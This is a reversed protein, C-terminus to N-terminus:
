STVFPLARLVLDGHTWGAFAAGAFALTLAALILGTGARTPTDERDLPRLLRDVRKALLAGPGGFAAVVAGRVPRALRAASVLASALDEGPVGARRAEDDRALELANLWAQLREPATGFPWQLDTAIQALWIRLPDRHRAHAREHALVAEYAGHDLAHRFGPEIAIRPRLLGAVAAPTEAGPVRLARVARVLTRTWVVGLPVALALATPLLLEDTESPEHLAWGVLVALATAAPLLPAWLRRWCAREQAACTEGRASLAPLLGPLWALFGCVILVLTALVLDRNV